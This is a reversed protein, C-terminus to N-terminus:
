RSMVETTHHAEIEPEVRRTQHEAHMLREDRPGPEEGKLLHPTAEGFDAQDNRFRLGPQVRAQEPAPISPSLEFRENRIGPQLPREIRVLPQELLDPDKMATQRADLDSERARQDGGPGCGMREPSPGVHGLRGDIAIRFGRLDRSM